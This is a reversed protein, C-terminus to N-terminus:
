ADICSDRVIGFRRNDLPERLRPQAEKRQHLVLLEFARSMASRAATLPTGESHDAIRMRSSASRSISAASWYVLDDMLGDRGRRRLAFPRDCGAISSRGIM